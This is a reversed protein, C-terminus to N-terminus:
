VFIIKKGNDNKKLRKMVGRTDFILRSSKYLKEYDIKDHDTIIISADYKCITKSNFKICIKKIKNARGIITKPFYPDFYDFFIKKRKLIKMFEYTPSERDDDINKKYSLGVLLVKINTGLIKFIKKLIIHPM